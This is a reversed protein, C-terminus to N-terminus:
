KDNAAVQSFVKSEAVAEAFLQHGLSNWHNDLPYDFRQGYMQFHQSFIVQMDIVEFGQARANQIFYHRMLGFYSAAAAERSAAEYLQPRIGDVVFLIKAADLEAMQPLKALFAEVVRRSKALRVSDTTALANGAFKTQRRHYQWEQYFDPLRANVMLYRFLTSRRMMAKVPGIEYDVRKLALNGTSDAVFYHFGPMPRNEIRSEDFDNGVVIVVLGAPRFTKKVYEAYALYQSLPAGSKGFAYVRGREKLRQHLKAAGTQPWPVAIAEVFSADIIALLPRRDAPDYNLDSIFGYNNVHVANRMSFNWFASWQVTRNPQCRAIPNAANVPLSYFGETVPFFQLIIEAVIALATIGIFAAALKFLLTKIRATM